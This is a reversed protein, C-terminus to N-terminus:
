PVISSAWRIRLWTRTSNKRSMILFWFAGHFCKDGPARSEYAAM